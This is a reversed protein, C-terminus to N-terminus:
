NNYLFAEIELLMTILSIEDLENENIIDKNDTM